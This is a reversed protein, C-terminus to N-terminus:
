LGHDGQFLHEPSLGESVPRTTTRNLSGRPALEVAPRVWLGAGQSVGLGRDSCKIIKKLLDATNENIETCKRNKIRKKRKREKM